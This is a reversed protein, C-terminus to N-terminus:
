RINPPPRHWTNRWNILRATLHITIALNLAAHRSAPKRDTNRRLQGNACLWSNTAEAIWRHGLGVLPVRGQGPRRRM